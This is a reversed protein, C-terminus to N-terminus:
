MVTIHFCPQRVEHLVFCQMDNRLENLVEGLISKLQVNSAKGGKGDFRAYTIDLTAGYLHTSNPSANINVGALKACTEKTRLVSTVIIRRDPLKNEKLKARFNQGIKDILDKAEPVLYAYSHTLRDIKYDPCSKIAVLEDKAKDIDVKRACPDIGNWKAGILHFYHRDRFAQKYEKFPQSEKSDYRWLSRGIFFVCIIIALSSFALVVTKSFRLNYQYQIQKIIEQLNM